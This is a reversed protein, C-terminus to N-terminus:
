KKTLKEKISVSLLRYGEQLIPSLVAMCENCLKSEDIEELLSRLEQVQESLGCVPCQETQPANELVTAGCYQCTKNM